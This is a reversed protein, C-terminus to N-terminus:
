MTSIGEKKKKEPPPPPPTPPQVAGGCKCVCNPLSEVAKLCAQGVLTNLRNPPRLGGGGMGMQLCLSPNPLSEYSQLLNARSLCRPAQPPPPPHGGGGNAFVISAADHTQFPNTHNFCCTQGALFFRLGRLKLRPPPPPSSAHHSLIRTSQPQPPSRLGGWKCVWHECSLSPCSEYISLALQCPKFSRPPQAPRLGGEATAFM